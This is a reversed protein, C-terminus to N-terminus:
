VTRLRVTEPDGLGRKPNAAHSGWAGDPRDGAWNIALAIENGHAADVVNMLRCVNNTSLPFDSPPNPIQRSSPSDIDGFGLFRALLAVSARRAL